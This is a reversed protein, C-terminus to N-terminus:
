VHARGIKFPNAPVPQWGDDVRIGASGGNRSTVLVHTASYRGGPTDIQVTAHSTSAADRIAQGTVYVVGTALAALTPIAIWLLPERRRRRLLIWLLPGAIIAYILIAIVLADIPPVRVGADGALQVTTPVGEFGFFENFVSGPQPELVSDFGGDFADGVFRIQGVGFTATDPDSEGFDVGPETSVESAGAAGAVVLTGGRGRVWDLVADRRPEALDDIDDATGIVYSFGGLVRTGEDLLTADIAFLRADGVDVTLDASDPMGRAALQPMVGVLEDGGAPRLNLLRTAAEGGGDPTYRVSYSGGWPFVPVDLVVTKTSGGPIEISTSALSRDEFVIVVDGETAGDSTITVLVPLRGGANQYYEGTPTTAELTTEAYAPQAWAILAVLVALVAAGGHRTRWAM